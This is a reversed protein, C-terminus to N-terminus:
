ESEGFRALHVRSCSEMVQMYRQYSDEGVVYPNPQGPLRSRLLENNEIGRDHLPHNAILVDVGAEQTLDRWRAYSKIGARLADAERGGGTGGHFGVLHPQGQDTVPFITSLTGPTHGPTIYFRLTTDGVVLTQGDEIVIDRQPPELGAFPGRSREGSMLDWDIASSLVRAGYTQQLYRAGGYHDGHGHTVVIYKINAPDLGLRQLNPVIIQEAEEPSNLADFLVIGASTVLAFSSVANQGVSYLQDFLQTPEILGDHQIGRVRVSYRPSIICRHVFDPFRDEGAIRRAEDLYRAVAAADAKPFETPTPYSSVAARQAAAPLAALMMAAAVLRRATAPGYTKQM